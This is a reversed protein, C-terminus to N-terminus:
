KNLRKEREPDRWWKCQEMRIAVGEDEMYAGGQDPPSVVLQKSGAGEYKEWVAANAVRHTNPDGSVVFSAWYASYLVSIEPFQTSLQGNFYLSDSAHPIGKYTPSFNPTNWRAKYVPASASSLVVATDQVPCIYSYDGYAASLREFQDSVYGLTGPAIKTNPYLRELDALDEANLGPTLTEWFNLYEADTRLDQPVFAKGEDTTSSILLPVKFFTGEEGSTSGRKEFLPGPSVPQWPWTINYNHANYISSSIFQIDGVESAELCALAEATPSEPCNLYDMFDSVQRQYLPYDVGPFARATPSGSSIAAKSFLPKGADEAYNHFLHIGVAHGGASQGSLTIQDKDGGFHDIYKHLFELAMKQDRIGLNLLGEEQMFKAPLTGLAGLRYQVTVVMLPETSREVFTAGDFSKHSGSVFSGGHLYVLSPLKKEMSVGSPRYVNITLCAESQGLSSYMNQFCAPGNATADKTGDFPAPWTVPKFRGSGVPQTSYEVNFWADVPRSFTESKKFDTLLKTGQFSGYGPLNILLSQDPTEKNPPSPRQPTGPQPLAPPYTPRAYTFAGFYWFLFVTSSSFIMIIALRRKAWRPPFRSAKITNEQEPVTAPLVAASPGPLRDTM